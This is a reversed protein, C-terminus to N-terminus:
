VVRVKGELVAAPLKMANSTYMETGHMTHLFLGVPFLLAFLLKGLGPNTQM